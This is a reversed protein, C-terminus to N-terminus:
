SRQVHESIGILQDHDALAEDRIRREKRLLLGTKRSMWSSTQCWARNADFVLACKDVKSGLLNVMQHNFRFEFGRKACPKFTIAQNFHRSNQADPLLTMGTGLLLCEFVRERLRLLWLAM